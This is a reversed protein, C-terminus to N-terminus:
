FWLNWTRTIMRIKMVHHRRWNLGSVFKWNNYHTVAWYDVLRGGVEGVEGVSGTHYVVSNLAVTKTDMLLVFATSM